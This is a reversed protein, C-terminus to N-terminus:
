EVGEALVQLDVPKHEILVMDVFWMQFPFLASLAECSDSTSKVDCTKYMKLFFGRM